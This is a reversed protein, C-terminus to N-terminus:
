LFDLPEDDFTFDGTGTDVEFTEAPTKLQENIVGTVINGIFKLIIGIITGM